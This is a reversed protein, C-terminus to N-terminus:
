GDIITVVTTHEQKNKLFTFMNKITTIARGLTTTRITTTDMFKERKHNTQHGCLSQDVNLPEIDMSRANTTTVKLDQHGSPELGTTMHRIVKSIASTVTVWAKLNKMNIQTREGKM